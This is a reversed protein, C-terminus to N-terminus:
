PGRRQWSTLAYRSHSHERQQSRALRSVEIALAFQSGVGVVRFPGTVFGSEALFDKAGLTPLGALKQAGFISRMGYVM